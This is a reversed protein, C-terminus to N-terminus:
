GKRSKAASVAQITPNKTIEKEFLMAKKQAKDRKGSDCLAKVETDFQSQRKELAKLQEQDVNNMCSQMGQLKQMDAETMGPYCEAIAATSMLLLLVVPAIKM